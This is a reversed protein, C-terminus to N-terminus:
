LEARPRRSIVLDEIVILDPLPADFILDVWAGTVTDDGLGAAALDLDLADEGEDAFRRVIQAVNPGHRLNIRAYCETGCPPRRAAAIRVLNRRSLGKIASKPLEFALSVFSGVFGTAMMEVAYGGDHSPVQRLGIVAEPREPFVQAAGYRTGRVAQVPSLPVSWADPRWAWETHLPGGLPRASKTTAVAVPAPRIGDLMRWWRGPGRLDASHEM